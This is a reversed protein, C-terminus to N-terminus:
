DHQSLDFEAMVWKHDSLGETDIIEAYRPTRALSPSCFIGDQRMNKGTGTTMNALKPNGAVVADVFGANKVLIDIARTDNIDPQGAVAKIVRDRGKLPPREDYGAANVDGGIISYTAHGTINSLDGIRRAETARTDPDFPSLHFNCVDLPATLHCTMLRTHCWGHHWSVGTRGGDPDFRLPHAEFVDLSYFIALHGGSSPARMFLGRMNDGLTEEVEYFREYSHLDWLMLEQLLVLDVDLRRIRNIQEDGRQWGLFARVGRPKLDVGGDLLNGVLVRLKGM